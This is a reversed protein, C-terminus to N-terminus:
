KEREQWIKTITTRNINKSDYKENFYLAVAGHKINLNALMYQYIEKKMDVNISTRTKKQNM